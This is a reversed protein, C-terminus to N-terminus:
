STGMPASDVVGLHLAQHQIIRESEDVAYNKKHADVVNSRLLRHFLDTTNQGLAARLSSEVSYRRFKYNELDSLRASLCHGLIPIQSNSRRILTQQPGRLCTAATQSLSRGRM